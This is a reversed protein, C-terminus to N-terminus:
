ARQEKFQMVLRAVARLERIRATRSAFNWAVAAHAEQELWIQFDALTPSDVPAASGAATLCGPMGSQEPPSIKKAFCCFYTVTEGDLGNYVFQGAGYLASVRIPHGDDITVFDGPNIPFGLFDSHQQPTM